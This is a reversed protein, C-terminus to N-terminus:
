AAGRLPDGHAIADADQNLQEAARRSLKRGAVLDEIAQEAPTM